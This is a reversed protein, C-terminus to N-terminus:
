QVARNRHDSGAPLRRGRRLAAGFRRSEELLERYTCRTEGDIVASSEGFRDAAAALMSPISDRGGGRAPGM